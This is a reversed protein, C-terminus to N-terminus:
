LSMQWYNCRPTVWRLTLAALEEWGESFKWAIWLPPTPPTPLMSTLITGLVGSDTNAPPWDWPKGVDWYGVEWRGPWHGGPKYSLWAPGQGMGGVWRFQLGASPSPIGAAFVDGATPLILSHGLLIYGELSLPVLWQSEWLSPRPSAPPHPYPRPPGPTLFNGWFNDDCHLYQLFPSRRPCSIPCSPLPMMAILIHAIRFRSLCSVRFVRAEVYLQMGRSIIKAFFRSRAYFPPYGLWPVYRYCVTSICTPNAGTSLTRNKRSCVRALM